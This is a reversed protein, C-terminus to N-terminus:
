QLLAEVPRSSAPEKEWLQGALQMDAAYALNWNHAAEEEAIGRQQAERSLAATTNAYGIMAVAAIAALMCFLGATLAALVPNRRSWRMLREAAPVPRARIPKDEAFRELDAALEVASPYRKEPEKAIAKLVITEVDRPVHPDLRRP